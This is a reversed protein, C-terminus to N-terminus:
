GSSRHPHSPRYQEIPQEIEAARYQRAREPKQAILPLSSPARGPDPDVQRHYVAIHVGRDKDATNTGTGLGALQPRRVISRSM